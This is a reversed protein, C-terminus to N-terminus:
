FQAQPGLIDLNEIRGFHSTDETAVPCDLLLATAAIWVDAPPIPQGKRSLQDRVRASIAVLERSSEIVEYQELQTELSNRRRQGWNDNFAGFLMEEVTQFSIVARRGQLLQEYRAALESGEQMLISVVSTDLVVLQPTPGTM